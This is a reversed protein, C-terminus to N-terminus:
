LAEIRALRPRSRNYAMIEAQHHLEPDSATRHWGRAEDYVVLVDQIFACRDEGALEACSWMFAPDDARDIWRMAKSTIAVRGGADTPYQLYELPIRHWLGARFTKLHTMTWDCMRYDIGKAYPAAFGKSGDSNRFSGWTVWKGDAHAQAVRRLARRGALWDDGDLLAVVTDKPLKSIAEHLNEMKTRKPDQESAEIYIHTAEVELQSRVSAECLSRSPHKWGTSVVHIPPLKM